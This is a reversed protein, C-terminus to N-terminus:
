ILEVVNKWLDFEYFETKKEFGTKFRNLCTKQGNKFAALFYGFNALLWVWIKTAMQSWFYDFESCIALDPLVTEQCLTQKSKTKQGQLFFQVDNSHLFLLFEANQAPKVKSDKARSKLKTNKNIM